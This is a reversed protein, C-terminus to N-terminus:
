WAVLWAVNQSSLLSMVEWMGNWFHFLDSNTHVTALSPFCIETSFWQLSTTNVLYFLSSSYSLAKTDDGLNTIANNSKLPYCNM